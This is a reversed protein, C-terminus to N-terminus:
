VERNTPLTLHTYSVPYYVTDLEGSRPRDGTPPPEVDGTASAGATRDGSGRCRVGFGTDLQRVQGIGHCLCVCLINYLCHGGANM